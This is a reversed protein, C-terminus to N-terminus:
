RLKEEDVGLVRQIGQKRQMKKKAIEDWKEKFANDLSERYAAANKDLESIKKLELMRALVGRTVLPLPISTDILASRSKRCKQCCLGLYHRKDKKIEVVHLDDLSRCSSCRPFITEPEPDDSFDLPIQGTERPEIQGPGTGHTYADGARYLDFLKARRFREGDKYGADLLRKAGNPTLQFTIIVNEITTRVFWGSKDRYQHLIPM